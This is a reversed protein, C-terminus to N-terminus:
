RSEERYTNHMEASHCAQAWKGAGFVLLLGFLSMIEIDSLLHGFSIFPVLPFDARWRDDDDMVVDVLSDVMADDIVIGKDAGSEDRNASRSWSNRSQVGFVQDGM